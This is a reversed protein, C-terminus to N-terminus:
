TPRSAQDDARLHADFGAETTASRDDDTGYGTLAVLRPQHGDAARIRKAVEIGSLGPLGLDLLMADPKHREAAALATVGDHAVTVRLGLMELAIRLTHAADQNDDVLLLDRPVARTSADIVASEPAAPIAPLGVVFESGHSNLTTSLAAM